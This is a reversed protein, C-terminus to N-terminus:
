PFYVMNTKKPQCSLTGGVWTAYIVSIYKRGTRSDLPRLDVHQSPQNRRIGSEKAQLQSDEGQTKLPWEEMGIQTWIEEEQPWTPNFDVM